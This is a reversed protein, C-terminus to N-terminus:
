TVRQVGFHDGSTTSAFRDVSVPNTVYGQSDRILAFRFLRTNSTEYPMWFQDQPAGSRVSRGMGESVLNLNHGRLWKQLTVRPINFGCVRSFVHNQVHNEKASRLQRRNQICISLIRFVHTAYQFYRPLDVNLSLCSKDRSKPAHFVKAVYSEANQLNTIYSVTLNLTICFHVKSESAHIM